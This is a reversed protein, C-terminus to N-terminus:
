RTGSPCQAIIHRLESMAMDPGHQDLLKATYYQGARGGKDCKVRVLPLPFERLSWAGHPM